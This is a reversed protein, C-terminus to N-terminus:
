EALLDVFVKGQSKARVLIQRRRENILERERKM